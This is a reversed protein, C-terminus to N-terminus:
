PTQANAPRRKARTQRPTTPAASVADSDDVMPERRPPASASLGPLVFTEIMDAVRALPIDTRIYFLHHCMMIWEILEADTVDARLEGAARGREFIPAWLGLVMAHPPRGRQLLLATLDRYASNEFLDDLLKDNRGVEISAISLQVLCEGFAAKKPIRTRLTAVLHGLEESILAEILSARDGYYQYLLPRSIGAGSAVDEMRTRAVGYREFRGRAADLIRRRVDTRREIDPTGRTASASSAM